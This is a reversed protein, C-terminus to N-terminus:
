YQIQPVSKPREYGPHVHPNNTVPVTRLDEEQPSLEYCGSLLALSAVAIAILYM